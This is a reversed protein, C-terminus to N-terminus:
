NILFKMPLKISEVGNKFRPYYKKLNKKRIRVEELNKAKKLKIQNQIQALKHQSKPKKLLRVILVTNQIINKFNVFMPLGDQIMIILLRFLKTPKMLPKTSLTLMLVRLQSVLKKHNQIKYLQRNIQKKLILNLKFQTKRHLLILSIYTIKKNPLKFRMRSLLNLPLKIRRQLLLSKLQKPNRRLQCLKRWKMILKKNAM